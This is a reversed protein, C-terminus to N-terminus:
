LWGHERYWGLALEVGREVPVRPEYGFDRHAADHQCTWAEQAGMKAKQKNFLRPKGDIKTALEGFVAAVDVLLEPLNLTLVSRGSARM